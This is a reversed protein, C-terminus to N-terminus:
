SDGLIENIINIFKNAIASGSYEGLSENIEEFSLKYNKNEICFKEIEVLYDKSKIDWENVILTKPYRLLYNIAPDNKIKSFHIIPKGLSMYEFIKGPVQHEVTNGINILIDAHMLNYLATDRNQFPIINPLYKQPSYDKIKEISLNTMLSLHVKKDVKSFLELLLSPNRIDDYLRGAFLCNIINEKMFNRSVAERDYHIRELNAFSLM